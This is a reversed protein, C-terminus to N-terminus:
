SFIQIHEIYASSIIICIAHMWSFCKWLELSINAEIWSYNSLMFRKGAILNRKRERTMIMRKKKQTCCKIVSFQLLNIWVWLSLLFNLELVEYMCNLPHFLNLKFRMLKTFFSGLSLLFNKCYVLRSWIFSKFFRKQMAIKLWKSLYFSHTCTLCSSCTFSCGWVKGVSLAPQSFNRFSLPIWSILLVSKSITHTHEHLQLAM